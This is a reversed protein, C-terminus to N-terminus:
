TQSEISNQRTIHEVREIQELKLRDKRPRKKAQEKIPTLPIGGGAWGIAISFLEVTDNDCYRMIYMIDDLPLIKGTIFQMALGEAMNQYFARTKGQSDPEDDSRYSRLVCLALAQRPPFKPIDEAAIEM